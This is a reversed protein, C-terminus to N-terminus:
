EFPFLTAFVEDIVEATIIDGADKEGNGFRPSGVKGQGGLAFDKGKEGDILDVGSGGVLTDNGADGKLTDNGNGGIIADNGAGGNLSDALSSGILTDDGGAGLLTVGGLTFGAANLLNKGSGGTLFASEIENLTDTSGGKGVSMLAVDTLTFNLNGSEDVRDIGQGGILADNGGGGTLVDNGDGGQLFDSATGGILSDNGAGGILTVAVKVSNANIVDSGSGGTLSIGEIGSYSDSGLVGSSRSADISVSGNISDQWVDNGPDRTTGGGILADNGVGGTLTDNGFGGDLRDNGDGGDLLDDGGFGNVSDNGQGGIFFDNGGGGILSDNGLGGDMTVAFKVQSADLKDAGDGGIFELTGSYSALSADLVVSDAASSGSLHLSVVDNVPTPTLLDSNNKSRFVLNGGVQSVKFPGGITSLTVVLNQAVDTVAVHITQNTKGGNGDDAQVQVEYVNNAGFDTPNEFDPAVKFSLVGGSTMQFRSQDAGGVIAYTVNRAPLDADTAAVTLVSTTNEAVNVTNPSTFVPLNDNIGILNIMVSAIGSRATDPGSDSVGIGLTISSFAEFDLKAANTVIIAGTTSSIAFIGLENGSTISYALSKTADADTATMTGILSSNALHEIVTFAAGNLVPNFENVDAIQITVSATDNRSVGPGSDTVRIILTVSSISERNLNGNNAVTITGTTPDIAFLGLGNGSTISYALAKTADGDTATSTGVLTGNASNEAITLTLDNLVPAFENVDSLNITISATDTRPDVPGSDTVQVTLTVSALRERNLDASNVVTIEGTTADIAFLGLENGGTISYSLVKVADADTATVTGVITGNASNEAVTFIANNLVPAFENVDTINISLEFAGTSGVGGSTGAELANEPLATGFGRVVAFYDGDAPAIFQLFSDFTTGDDDNQFLLRGTSDYVALYSDLTSGNVRADVDLTVGANAAAHFRFYDYDGSTLGFEGDGIQGVFRNGENTELHTDVALQISDNEDPVPANVTLALEYEGTSGGGFGSGAAMADVPLGSGFGLVVVFFDGTTPAVFYLYSDLTDNNPDDDNRALLTGNSDYILVTTDLESGNEQANLDVIVTSNAAAHFRYFDYDGTTQGFEGDGIQRRFTNSGEDVIGTESAQPISDNPEGTITVTSAIVNSNSVGDSVQITVNRTTFNPNESSNSYEVARLAAQWQELTATRGASTLTLVGNANSSVAINGMTNADPTLSLVDQGSVFNTIRVTASALTAHDADSVVVEPSISVGNAGITFSSGSSSGALVPAVNPGIVNITVNLPVSTAVSDSIRISIARPNTEPNGSTNSYKVARLATQWQALTANAGSSTLTLLGNSNSTAVINGMTASNATFSLVDQGAVFNAIKVTASSLAPHDADSLTITPHIAKAPDNFTYTLTNGGGFMPVDNVSAVNVTSTITNSNDRGDNVSFTITRPTTTPRESTNSYTVARLAARWQPLTANGSASTLTLVGNANSTVNIDGMSNAVRVFGLVDQGAVFNAITVKASALTLNDADSITLGTNIAVAPDNETFNVSSSGSLVPPQPVIQEVRAYVGTGSGDQGDSTWAVVVNGDQNVAISPDTQAGATYTNVVRTNGVPNGSADFQQGYIDSTGNANQGAATWVIGFDGSPAMAVSPTALVSSTSQNVRIADGQTVGDSRIRRAWVDHSNGVSEVWTVVFNGVADMAVDPTTPVATSSQALTSTVELTGTASYRKAAVFPTGAGTTIGRYAVVFRGSEDIAISPESYRVGGRIGDGGIEVSIRNGQANGLANFRQGYIGNQTFNAGMRTWAVVFNGNGTMAVVPSSTTVDSALLFQGDPADGSADFRRAHIGAAVTASQPTSWVVVFNGAGDMSVAPGFGQATGFSNSVLIEGGLPQGLSDYRRGFVNGTVLDAWVVVSSGDPAIAVANQGTVRQHGATTDNVRFELVDTVNITSTVVNSSDTGDNLVFTVTRPATSPTSSSNTYSVAALAARWTATNATAGASTLTLVGTTGDFSGSINGTNSNATFTLVDQGAVFNTIAVTASAFTSHDSDNITIASNIIKPTDGEIFNVMSSGSLVPADNVSLVNIQSTVVNSPDKGDSVTFTVTRQTTNPKENSNSYKISQLAAQWEATTALAGASTLTLVGTVSSFSGVINGFSAANQTFSLVDQGAVFNTIAVTASPLKAHDADTVTIDPNIVSAAGNETFTIESSGTLVPPLNPPVINVTSSLSNSSTSADQVQFRISRPTLNPTLSSNSYKVARLANQWQPLTAQNGTSTLTLTGTTSDFSGAINGTSSSATFSLTDQSSVFNSISVTARTLSSNDADAVVIASNVVVEPTRAVHSITSTGTLVPADNTATLDITSLVTGSNAVGDSVRFQVTRQTTVPNDSTNSYKVARVAEQWQEVTATRGISTLTLTGTAADFSGTINGSQANPAFSLVDQGSVFNTITVTASGLTADDADSVVLNPNITTAAGNEIYGIASSGSLLPAENVITDWGIVDFALIDLNTIRGFEGPALTPDLLGIGRSDKWHSAQQGDGLKRGTSFTTLSTTGGDISFFKQRADVTWDFVGPGHAVSENSFRFLDLPSVWVLEEDNDNTGPENPALAYAELDDVGSSFGLAHGIEHAATAVFDHANLDIGNSRDFDWKFKNSFTIKADVESDNEEVLGLAKANARNVVITRNNADGDNDLYPIASGAGHPSNGTRNILMGPTVTIQLNSVASIDGVTKADDLLSQVFDLYGVAVLSTGTGGLNGPGLAEFGIEINVIIDDRLIASWMAAAEHFGDIVAQPTGPRPILNIQLGAGNLHSERGVSVITTTTLETRELHSRHIVPSSDATLATSGDASNLQRGELPEVM